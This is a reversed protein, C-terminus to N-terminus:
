VTAGTVINPEGDFEEEDEDNDMDDDLSVIFDCDRLWDMVAEDVGEAGYELTFGNTDADEWFKDWITKLQIGKAICEDASGNNHVDDWQNNDYYHKTIDWTWLWVLQPFVPVATLKDIILNLSEYVDDRRTAEQLDIDSM